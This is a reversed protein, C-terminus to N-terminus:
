IQTAIAIISKSTHKTKHSKGSNLPTERRVFNGCIFMDVDRNSTQFCSALFYQQLVTLLYILVIKFYYEAGSKIKSYPTNNVRYNAHVNRSSVTDARCARFCPVLLARLTQASRVGGCGALLVGIRCSLRFEDSAINGKRSILRSSHRM